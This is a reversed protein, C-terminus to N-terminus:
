PCKGTDGIVGGGYSSSWPQCSRPCQSVEYHNEMCCGTPVNGRIPLLTDRGHIVMLRYGLLVQYSDGYAVNGASCPFFTVAYTWDSAMQQVDLMILWWRRRSRSCSHRGCHVAHITDLIGKHEGPFGAILGEAHCAFCRKTLFFGFFFVAACLPYKIMLDSGDGPTFMSARLAPRKLCGRSHSKLDVATCHKCLSCFDFSPCLCKALAAGNRVLLSRVVIPPLTVAVPPLSAALDHHPSNWIRFPCNQSLEAM